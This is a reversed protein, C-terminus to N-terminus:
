AGRCARADRAVEAVVGVVAVFSKVVPSPLEERARRRRWIRQASPQELIRLPVTGIDQAALDVVREHQRLKAVAAEAQKVNGVGGVDGALAGRAPAVLISAGRAIGAKRVRGITGGPAQHEAAPEITHGRGM